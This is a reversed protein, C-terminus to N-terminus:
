RTWEDFRQCRGYSCSSEVLGENSEQVFPANYVVAQEHRIKVIDELTVDLQQTDANFSKVVGTHSTLQDGTGVFSDTIDKLVFYLELVSDPLDNADYDFILTM